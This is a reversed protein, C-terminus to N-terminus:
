RQRARWFPSDPFRTERRYYWGLDKLYAHYTAAMQAAYAPVSNAVIAEAAATGSTLADHLGRSSLPDHACAADGVAVWGPGAVRELASSGAAATRLRDPRPWRARPGVLATKALLDPWSDITGAISADTFLAVVMRGGPVRSAYWWGEPVAEVLGAADDPSPDPVLATIGVLRSDVRRPSRRLRGSRGTADIIFNVSIPPKGPLSITWLPGNRRVETVRHPLAPGLADRLMQNFRVRDLQWSPGRPDLLAPRFAPEDSGWCSVFGSSPLHGGAQFSPWLGLKRLAAGAAAPLGEGPEWEGAPRPDIAVVDVGRAALTIAAAAGAPGCGLVAVRDPKM